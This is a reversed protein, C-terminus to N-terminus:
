SDYNVSFAVSFIVFLDCANMKSEGGYSFFEGCNEIFDAWYFVFVLRYFM